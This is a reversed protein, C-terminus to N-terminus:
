AFQLWAIAVAFMLVSAVLPVRWKRVPESPTFAISPVDPKLQEELAWMRAQLREVEARHREEVASLEAAM